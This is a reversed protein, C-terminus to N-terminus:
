SNVQHGYICQIHISAFVDDVRRCVQRQQVHQAIQQPDGARFVTAAHTNASRARTVDAIVGDSEADKWDLADRTLADCGDFTEGVAIFQMRHLLGPDILVDRLTAETLRTLDHRCNLQEGCDGVWGVLLDIGRHGLVNASATCVHANAGRDLSCGCHHIM